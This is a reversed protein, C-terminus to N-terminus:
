NSTLVRSLHVQFDWTASLFVQSRVGYCLINSSASGIECKCHRASWNNAEAKPKPSYNIQEGNVFWSIKSLRTWYNNITRCYFWSSICITAKNSSLSPVFLMKQIEKSHSLLFTKPLFIASLAETASRFFANGHPEDLTWCRKESAFFHDAQFLLKCFLM